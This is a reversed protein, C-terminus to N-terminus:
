NFDEGILRPLINRSVALGAAAGAAEGISWEVPHLRYCGNTIHTTGINKGAALLNECRKPVLARFPIQFPLSGIDIYNRGNSSPHLDIRYYGIGVSDIFEAAQRSFERRVAEGVHLETVTFLAQLRRSERIYPMKALGSATCSIAPAAYLEPFGYGGDPRPAETQLYYLMSLSLEQAAAYHKQMEEPSKDIINGLMYDNQPWNMISFEDTAAAYNAASRVQRYRWFDYGSYIGD